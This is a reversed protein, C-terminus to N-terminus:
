KALEALSAETAKLSSDARLTSLANRIRNTVEEFDQDNREDFPMRKRSKMPVDM